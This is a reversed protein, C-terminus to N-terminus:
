IALIPTFTRVRDLDDGVVQNGCQVWCHAAFPFQVGLVITPEHGHRRLMAAVALSRPLCRDISPVMRQVRAFAAAIEGQSRGARAPTSQGGQVKASVTKEIINSFRTRAVFMIQFVQLAGAQAILAASAACSKDAPYSANAVPIPTAREIAGESGVLLGCTALTRFDDETACNISFAEFRRALDGRLFFYRGQDVDLFVPVGSVIRGHLGKRLHM